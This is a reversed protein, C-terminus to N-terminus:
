DTAVKNSRKVSQIADRTKVVIKVGVRTRIPGSDRLLSRLPAVISVMLSAQAHAATSVIAAVATATADEEGLSVGAISAVMRATMSACSSFRGSILNLVVRSLSICSLAPLASEVLSSVTHLDHSSYMRGPM